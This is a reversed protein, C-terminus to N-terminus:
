QKELLTLGPAPTSSKQFEPMRKGLFARVKAQDLITRTDPATLGIRDKYSSRGTKAFHALLVEAAEERLPKAQQLALTAKEWQEAAEAVTLKKKTLTSPM